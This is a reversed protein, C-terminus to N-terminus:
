IPALEATLGNMAVQLFNEYGEPTDYAGHNVILDYLEAEMQQLRRRGAEAQAWTVGTVALVEAESQPLGDPFRHQLLPLLGLTVLDQAEISLEQTTVYREGEAPPRHIKM